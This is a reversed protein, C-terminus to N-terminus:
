LKEVGKPVKVKAGIEVQKLELRKKKEPDQEVRAKEYLKHLETEKCKHSESTHFQLEVKVNDPSLLCYNIGNYGTTGDKWYNIEKIVTYGKKELRDIDKKVDKAYTEEDKLSTYRLIDGLKSVSDYKERIYVKEYTSSPSKVRTELSILGGVNELLDGTIKAENTAVKLYDIYDPNSMSELAKREQKIDNIKCKGTLDGLVETIIKNKEKIVDKGYKTNLAVYDETGKPAFQGGRDGKPYHNPNAM